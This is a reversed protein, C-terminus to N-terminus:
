QGLRALQILSASAGRLFTRVEVMEVDGQDEEDEKERMTMRVQGEKSRVGYMHGKWKRVRWRRIRM